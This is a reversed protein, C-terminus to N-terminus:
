ELQKKIEGLGEEFSAMKQFNNKKSIVKAFQPRKAKNKFYEDYTTRRILSPDLGFTNAILIGADFPSLSSAGVIHFIEESYNELLHNIAYAIDDIFTPTFISDTVMSINKKELLLHQITRVFDRKEDFVARYPYEIRVIMANDKVVQEGLFKTEGYYGIPHPTSDESIPENKVGDFIFGTSIYIFKKNKNKTVEFLNKTGDVNISHALTRDTEAGDVNTYAALHLLLDYDLSMLHTQVSDRDTIDFESQLLHIFEVDKILELIRTGVLGTSGTIAVKLQKM